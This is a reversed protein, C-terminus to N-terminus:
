LLELFIKTLCSEKGCSVAVMTAANCPRSMAKTLFGYDMHGLARGLRAKVVNCFLASLNGDFFEVIIVTHAKSCFFRFFGFMGNDNLISRPVSIFFDWGPNHLTVAGHGVFGCLLETFKFYITWGM